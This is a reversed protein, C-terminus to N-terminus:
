AWAIAIATVPGHTQGRGSVGGEEDEEEEVKEEQPQRARGHPLTGRTVMRLWPGGVSSAGMTCVQGLGPM